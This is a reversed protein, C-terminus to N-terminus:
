LRFTMAGHWLLLFAYGTWFYLCFMALRLWRRQYTHRVIMSALPYWLLSLGIIAGLFYFPSTFAVLTVLGAVIWPIYSFIVVPMVAVMAATTMIRGRTPRFTYGIQGKTQRILWGLMALGYGIVLACIAALPAPVPDGLAQNAALADKWGFWYIAFVVAGILLAALRPPTYSQQVNNM